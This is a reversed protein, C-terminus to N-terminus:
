CSQKDQESRKDIEKKKNEVIQQLLDIEQYLMENAEQDDQISGIVEIDEICGTETMTKIELMAPEKEIDKICGNGEVNETDAISELEPVPDIIEVEPVAAIIEVSDTTKNISELTDEKEGAQPCLVDEENSESINEQIPKIVEVNEENEIVDCSTEQELEKSINEAVDEAEYCIDNVNM